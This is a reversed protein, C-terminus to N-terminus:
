LLPASVILHRNKTRNLGLLISCADCTISDRSPADTRHAREQNWIGPLIAEQIKQVQFACPLTLTPMASRWNWDCFHQSTREFGSLRKPVSMDAM